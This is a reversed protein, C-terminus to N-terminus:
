SIMLFNQKKWNGRHCLKVSWPRGGESRRAEERARSRIRERPAASQPAARDRDVALGVAIELAALGVLRLILVLNIPQRPFHRSDVHDEHTVGM